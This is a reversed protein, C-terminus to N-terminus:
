SRSCCLFLRVMGLRKQLKKPSLIKRPQFNKRKQVQPKKEEIITVDGSSQANEEIYTMEPLHLETGPLYSPQRDPWQTSQDPLDSSDPLFTSSM